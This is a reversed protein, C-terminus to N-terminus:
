GLFLIDHIGLNLDFYVRYNNEEPFIQRKNTCIDCSKEKSVRRCAINEQIDSLHLLNSVLLAWLTFYKRYNM